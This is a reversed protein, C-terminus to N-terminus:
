SVMVPFSVVRARIILVRSLENRIRELYTLIAVFYERLLDELQAVSSHYFDLWGLAGLFHLQLSHTALVFADLELAQVGPLVELAVVSRLIQELLFVLAQLAMDCVMIDVKVDHAEQLLDLFGYEPFVVIHQDALDQKIDDRSLDVSDAHAALLAESEGLNLTAVVM